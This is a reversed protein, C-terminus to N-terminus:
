PCLWSEFGLQDSDPFELTKDVRADTAKWSMRIAQFSRKEDRLEVDQRPM